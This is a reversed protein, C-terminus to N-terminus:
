LEAILHTMCSNFTTKQDLKNTFIYWLCQLLETEIGVRWFSKSHVLLEKESGSTWFKGMCLSSLFGRGCGGWRLGVAWLSVSIGCTINYLIGRAQLWTIHFSFKHKLHVLHNTLSGGQSLYILSVLWDTVHSTNGVSKGQLGTLCTLINHWTYYWSSVSQDTWRLGLCVVASDKM